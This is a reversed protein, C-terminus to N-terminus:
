VMNQTGTDFLNPLIILSGLKVKSVKVKGRIMSFLTGPVGDLRILYIALIVSFVINFNRAVRATLLLKLERQFWSASLLDMSNWIKHIM